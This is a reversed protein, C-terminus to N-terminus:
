FLGPHGINGRPVRGVRDLHNQIFGTEIQKIRLTSINKMEYIVDGTVDVGPNLKRLKNLQSQLRRPLGTSALKSMDAKGYKHVIDGIRIEYIGLHGIYSHANKHIKGIGCGKANHVWVAFAGNTKGEQLVFYTHYDDVEFNYTTFTEGLKAPESILGTVAVYTNDTIELRDNIALQRASVWGKDAVFFPHEGSVKLEYADGAKDKYTLTFLETHLVTFLNVVPKYDTKQTKPDKSLVYDGVQIAEISKLGQDTLVQTGAIICKL